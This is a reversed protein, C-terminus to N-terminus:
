YWPARERQLADALRGSSMTATKDLAPNGLSVFNYQVSSGKRLKPIDVRLRKKDESLDVAASDDNRVMSISDLPYESKINITIDPISPGDIHRIALSCPYRTIQERLSPDINAANITTLDASFVGEKPGYLWDSYHTAGIVAIIAGLIAGVLGIWASKMGENM